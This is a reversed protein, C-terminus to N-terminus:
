QQVHAAAPETVRDLEEFQQLLEATVDKVDEMSFSSDNISSLHHM